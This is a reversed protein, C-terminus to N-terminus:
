NRIQTKEPGHDPRGAHDQRRGSGEDPNANTVEKATNVFVTDLEPNVMRKNGEEAGLKVGVRNSTLNRLESTMSPYNSTLQSRIIEGHEQGRLTSNSSNIKSNEFNSLNSARTKSRGPARAGSRKPPNPAGSGEPVKKSMEKMKVIIQRTTLVKRVEVRAM